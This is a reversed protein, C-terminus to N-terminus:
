ISFRFQRQVTAATLEVPGKLRVKFLMSLETLSQLVVVIPYM